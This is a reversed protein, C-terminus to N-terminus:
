SVIERVRVRVRVRSERGEEVEALLHPLVVESVVNIAARRKAGDAVGGAGTQTGGSGGDEDEVGIDNEVLDEENQNRFEKNNM